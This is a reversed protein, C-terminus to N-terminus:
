RGGTRKGLSTIRLSLEQALPGLEPRIAIERRVQVAASLGKAIAAAVARQRPSQDHMKEIQVLHWIMRKLDEILIEASGSSVGSRVAHACQLAAELITGVEEQQLDRSKRGDWRRDVVTRSPISCMAFIDQDVQQYLLHATQTARDARGYSFAQDEVKSWWIAFDGVAGAFHLVERQLMRRDGPTLMALGGQVFGVERRVEGYFDLAGDIKPWRQAEPLESQIATRLTFAHEHIRAAGLKLAAGVGHYSAREAEEHRAEHEEPTAGPGQGERQAAAERRLGALSVRRSAGPDHEQSPDPAPEPGPTAHRQIVHETETARSM